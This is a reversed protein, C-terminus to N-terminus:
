PNRTLKIEKLPTYMAGERQLVSQYLVLSDALFTKADLRIIDRELLPAPAKVRGLTIHPTFERREREIDIVELRSEIDHFIARMNDVGEGFTVVIVRARKKDPFASIEKLTAEIAGHLKDIGELAEEIEQLKEETIEGFFKFTMHQGEPKVWKVNPIRQSMTKAVGSLYTKIEQPTELALFVRM